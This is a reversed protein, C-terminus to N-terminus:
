KHPLVVKVDFAYGLLFDSAEATGQRSLPFFESEVHAKKADKVASDFVDVTIVRRQGGPFRELRIHADHKKDSSDV